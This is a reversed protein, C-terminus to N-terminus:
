NTTTYTVTQEACERIKKRMNDNEKALGYIMLGMIFTTFIFTATLTILEKEKTRM